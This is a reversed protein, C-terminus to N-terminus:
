NILSRGDDDNISYDKISDRQNGDRNRMDSM